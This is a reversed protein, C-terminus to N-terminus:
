IFTKKINCINNKIINLFIKFRVHVIQNKNLLTTVINLSAVILVIIREIRFMNIVINQVFIKNTDELNNLFFFQNTNYKNNHM